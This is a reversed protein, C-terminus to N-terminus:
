CDSDGEYRLTGIKTERFKRYIEITLGIKLAM